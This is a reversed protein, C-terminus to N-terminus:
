SLCNYAHIVFVYAEACCTYTTMSNLHSAGPAVTYDPLGGPNSAVGPAPAGAKAKPTPPPPMSSPGAPTPSPISPVGPALADNNTETKVPEKLPVAIPARVPTPVSRTSEIIHKPSAAADPKPQQPSNKPSPPQQSSNKPSPPQQSSNKPSPPQQPAPQQPINKPSPPLAPKGFLALMGAKTVPMFRPIEEDGPECTGAPKKVGKAKMSASKADSPKPVAALTACPSQAGPSPPAKPAPPMQLALSASAAAPGPEVYYYRLTQGDVSEDRFQGSALKRQM